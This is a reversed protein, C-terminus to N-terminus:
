QGPNLDPLLTWLGIGLLVLSLGLLLLRAKGLLPQITMGLLKLRFTTELLPHCRLTYLLTHLFVRSTRLLHPVQHCEKM